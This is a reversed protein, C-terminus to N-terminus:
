VVAVVPSRLQTVRSNEACVLENIRSKVLLYDKTVSLPKRM